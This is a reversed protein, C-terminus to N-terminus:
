SQKAFLRVGRKPVIADDRFDIDLLLRGGVSNIRGNGLVTTDGALINDAPIQGENNEYFALAIFRSKQWFIKQLGTSFNYGNFRSKYYLAPVSDFKVTENGSGYYYIYPFPKAIDGAAVWDWNGLAHHLENAFKIEFNGETSVKVGAGFKDAYEDEGFQHFTYVLGLGFTFADEPSYAIVPYPLYTNYQFAQRKYEVLNKEDSRVIKQNPAPTISDNVDMAYDYIQTIRKRSTGASNNEILDDGKGGFMRVLITKTANGEIMMRDNGDLGYVNISKTEELSFVRHYLAIGSPGNTKKDKDFMSVEVNGDELRTIKFFEAKNSGVVDANKALLDYYAMIGRPLDARRSKM